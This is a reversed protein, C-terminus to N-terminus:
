ILNEKIIEKLKEKEMDESTLKEVKKEIDFLLSNKTGEDVDSEREYYIDANYKKHWRTEIGRKMVKRRM